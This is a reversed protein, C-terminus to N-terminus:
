PRVWDMAEQRRTPEFYRIEATTFPKCFTAMGKQWKKEGIFAIKEVDNFHKLDFKIDEWLGGADWGDFDTLDVLVSVKGHKDILREVEPAFLEYDKKELKGKLDVALVQGGAREDMAVTMEERRERRPDIRGAPIITEHTDAL